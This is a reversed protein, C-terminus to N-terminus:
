PSSVHKAHCWACSNSARAPRLNRTCANDCTYERLGIVCGAVIETNHCDRCSATGPRSALWRVTATTSMCAPRGQRVLPAVLVFLLSLIAVFAMLSTLTFRFRRSKSSM